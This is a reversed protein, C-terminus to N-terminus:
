LRAAEPGFAPLAQALTATIRAPLVDHLDCWTVGPRYTPQVRGPGTSARGALFDGVCSRRPTTIAAAACM